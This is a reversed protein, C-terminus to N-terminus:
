CCKLPFDYPIGRNYFHCGRLRAFKPIPARDEHGFDLLSLPYLVLSQGSFVQNCINGFFALYDSKINGFSAPVSSNKLRSDYLSDNM